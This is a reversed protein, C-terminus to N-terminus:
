LAMGKVGYRLQLVPSAEIADLVDLRTTGKRVWERADKAPPTVIRVGNPVYGVLRAALSRAGRQGPADADAIIAVDSPQWKEIADVLLEAGGNCSPRGIVDFSLDRLAATDTAGECIILGGSIPVNAPIFLGERGGRVSLKRGDTKRLRIGRVRGDADTMPWTTARHRQSWGVGLETLSRASLSLGESLLSRLHPGMAAFCEVAMVGFDIVPEAATEIRVRRQRPQDRWNDDNRLRHL